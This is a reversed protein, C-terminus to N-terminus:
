PKLIFFLSYFLHKGKHLKFVLPYHIIFIIFKIIFINFLALLPIENLYTMHMTTFLNNKKVSLSIVNNVIKIQKYLKNQIQWFIIQYSPYIQLTLSNLKLPIYLYNTLSNQNYKPKCCTDCLQYLYQIIEIPAFIFPGHHFIVSM